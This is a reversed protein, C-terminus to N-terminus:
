PAATELKRIVLTTEGGGNRSADKIEFDGEAPVSDTAPINVLDFQAPLVAFEDDRIDLITQQESIISADLGMVDLARTGYIGRASYAPAGPQSAIPTITVPRGFLDQCPLYVLTSM